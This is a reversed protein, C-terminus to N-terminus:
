PLYNQKHISSSVDNIHNELDQLSGNNQVVFDARKAKEEQSFHRHMRQNFDTASFGKEVFRRECEKPDAVVTITHDFLDEMEAEFLLPIEVAFFRVNPSGKVKEYEKKIVQKVYPHLIDELAKLKIPDSFVVDAIKKRSVLKGVVIEKGLLNVVKRICDKNHFLLDHVIADASIVYSGQKELIRCAASKGSAPCGTVAIRIIKANKGIKEM